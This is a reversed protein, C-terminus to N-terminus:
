RCAHHVYEIHGVEKRVVPKVRIPERVIRNTANQNRLSPMVADYAANIRRVNARAQELSIGAERKEPDFDSVKKAHAQKAEDLTANRPLQLLNFDYAVTKRYKSTEMELACAKWCLEVAQDMPITTKAHAALAASFIPDALGWDPDCLVTAM